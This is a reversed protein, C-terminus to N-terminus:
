RAPGGLPVSGLSRYRHGATTPESVVLDVDGVNFTGAVDIGALAARAPADLRRRRNGRALTLHGKFPPEHTSTAPVLGVTSRRVAGALGDLGRVPVQLVTGRGFWATMPGLRAVVPREITAVSGLAGLLAPVIGPEVDGLFRLTVHWQGPHVLRLGASPEVPLDALVRRTDADPWVAVFLRVPLTHGVAARM